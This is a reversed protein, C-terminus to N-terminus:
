STVPDSGNVSPTGDWPFVVHGFQAFQRSLDGPYTDGHNAGTSGFWLDVLEGHRGAPSLSALGIPTLPWNTDYANAGVLKAGVADLASGFSETSMWITMAATGGWGMLKPTAVSQLASYNLLTTSTGSALAVAPLTWGAVTRSPKDFLWFLVPVNQWYGIVRTCQGDTSQMAHIVFQLTTQAGLWDTNNLLVVEDTGTPRAGITGSTNFGGPAWVITMRGPDANNLDICIEFNTSIGDQKLVIWSHNGTGWVLAADSTWLDSTAVSGSGTSSSKVTWPKLMGPRTALTTVLSDKIARLVKQHTALSTGGVTLTRNVDFQWTKQLSPLPM